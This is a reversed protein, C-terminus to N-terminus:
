AGCTEVVLISTTLAFLFLWEDVMETLADSREKPHALRARAEDCVAFDLLGAREFVARSWYRPLRADSLVAHSFIRIPTYLAQKRRETIARPLRRRHMRRLARKNERVSARAREPLTLAMDVFDDDLYPFRLELGHTSSMRDGMHLIWAPLRCSIEFQLNRELSTLGEATTAFSRHFHDREIERAEVSVSKQCSALPSRRELTEWLALNEPHFGFHDVIETERARAHSDLYASVVSADIPLWPLFRQGVATTLKTLAALPRAIGTFLPRFPSIRYVDYGAFLEDPGEGALIVSTGDLKAEKALLGLSLDSTWWQPMEARVAYAVIDDLTLKGVALSKPITGLASATEAIASGESYSTQELVLSYLRRQASPVEAAIGASDIGGSLYVGMQVDVKAARAVARTFHADLRSAAEDLSMSRPALRLEAWRRKTMDSSKVDIRLLEGPLVAHIQEFFTRDGLPHNFRLLEAFAVRDVNRGIAGSALIARAESAIFVNGHADRAHLLPEIGVRDRGVLVVDTAEDFYVFGFMGKLKTLANEGHIRLMHLLVETDGSTRFVVGHERELDRRLEVHNMIAGAFSVHSSGFSMPQDSRENPDVVRLRTHGLGVGSRAWLGTHDPGRHVLTRTMTGLVREVWTAGSRLAVVATVGCM